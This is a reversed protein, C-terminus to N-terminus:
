MTILASSWTLGGGFAMLLITEGSKIKGERVAQDLALPVSAASSNGFRDLNVMVRDSPFGSAELASDIIRQNVQHPVIATLTLGREKCDAQAQEILEIM